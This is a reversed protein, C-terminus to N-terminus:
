FGSPRSFGLKVHLRMPIPFSLKNLRDQGCSWSPGKGMYPLCRIFDEEGSGFPLHGQFKIHLM